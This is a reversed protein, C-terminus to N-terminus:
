PDTYFYGTGDEKVGAYRVTILSPDFKKFGAVHGDAFLIQVVRNPAKHGFAPDNNNYDDKDTDNEEFQGPNGVEGALLHMSPRTILNLQVPLYFGNQANAYGAAHSGIFFSNEGRPTGRDVASPATFVKRAGITKDSEGTFGIYADIQQQWSLQDEAAPAAKYPITSHAAPLRSDNDAAYALLASGIQALKGSTQSQRGKELTSSLVPTLLVALVAIILIVVLLEILTFGRKKM